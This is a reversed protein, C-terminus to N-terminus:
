RILCYWCFHSTYKKIYEYTVDHEIDNINIYNEDKLLDKDAFMVPSHNKIQEILLIFEDFVIWDELYM